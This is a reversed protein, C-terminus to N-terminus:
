ELLGCRSGARLALDNASEALASAAEAIQRLRVPDILMSMQAIPQEPTGAMSDFLDIAEHLSSLAVSFLNENADLEEIRQREAMSLGSRLRPMCDALQALVTMDQGTAQLQAILVRLGEQHAHSVPPLPLAERIRGVSNAM